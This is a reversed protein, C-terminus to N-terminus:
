VNMANEVAKILEKGDVTLNIYEGEDPNSTSIEVKGAQEANRIYVCVPVEIGKSKGTLMCNVIM